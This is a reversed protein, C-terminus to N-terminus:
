TYRCMILARVTWTSKEVKRNGVLLWITAAFLIAYNPQEM